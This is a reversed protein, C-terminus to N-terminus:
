AAVSESTTRLLAGFGEVADDIGGARQAHWAVAQNSTLVPRGLEAELEEIIDATEIATCSFLCADATDCRNDLAFSLWTEPTEQAMEWNSNLGFSASTVVEFGHAAFYAAERATVADEYPTILEIRRAGLRRLGGVLGGATTVTRTATIAEIRSVLEDEMGARYTTVATCNFAIIDVHAHALLTAAEELREIMGVLDAETSGTLPLRTTHLEVGPALMERVQREAVINGSPVLMGISLRRERHPRRQAMGM